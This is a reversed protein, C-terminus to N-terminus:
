QPLYLSDEFYYLVEVFGKMTFLEVEACVVRSKRPYVIDLIHFSLCSMQTLTEMLVVEPDLTTWPALVGVRNCQLPSTWFFAGIELLDLLPCVAQPRTM